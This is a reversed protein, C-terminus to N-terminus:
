ACAETLTAIKRSYTFMRYDGSQEVLVPFEGVLAPRHIDRSRVGSVSGILRAESAVFTTGDKCTVAAFQPPPTHTKM